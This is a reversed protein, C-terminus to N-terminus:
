GVDSRQNRAAQLWAIIQVLTQDNGFAGAKTVLNMGDFRGGLIRSLVVGPFVQTQLNLADVQGEQCFAQATDGGTLVLAKVLSSSAARWAIRALRKAVFASGRPSTASGCTTILAPKEEMMRQCLSRVLDEGPDDWEGALYEFAPRFVPVNSVEAACVQRRSMESQSGVVVLIGGQGRVFPEHTNIKETISLSAALAGALGAAGCFLRIGSRLAAQALARLDHDTEVDAVFIADDQAAYLMELKPVNNKVVDLPIHIVPFGNLSFLHRLDGSSIKSAFETDEIPKGWVMQKAGLTTRGQAPFAPSVLVRRCGTVEMVRALEEAPYGRLTSDMKKFIWKVESARQAAASIRSLAAELPLNRSDTNLVMAGALDLSNWNFCIQTPIGQMRFGVGADAAGTLDDALILLDPHNM